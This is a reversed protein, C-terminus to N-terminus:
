KKKVAKAAAKAAKEKELRRAAHRAKMADSLAKRGEATIGGKKKGPKAPKEAKEAKPVRASKPAASKGELIEAIQIHLASIAQLEAVTLQDLTKM